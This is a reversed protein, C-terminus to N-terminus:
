VMVAESYLSYFSCEVTFGSTFDGVSMMIHNEGPAIIFDGLFTDDTLCALMNGDVSSYVKRNEVDITIEEGERSTCSLGIEKGTTLNRIKIGQAGTLEKSCVIRIQPEAAIDGKNEVLTKTQTRGFVKPLTFPTSLELSRNYLACVSRKADQFFPNDCVFQLVLTTLRNKIIRAPDPIRVQNCYIRKEPSEEGLYLYGPQSLIRLISGINKSIDSGWLEAGLTICRPLARSAVTEQGDYGAFVAATYERECVGLGEVHTISIQSGRSGDMVVSGLANTYEFFM